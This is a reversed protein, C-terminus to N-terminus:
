CPCSLAWEEQFSGCALRIDKPSAQDQITVAMHLHVLTKEIRVMYSSSM